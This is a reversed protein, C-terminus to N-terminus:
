APEGEARRFLFQRAGDGADRPETRVAYVEEILTPDLVAAPAGDARVRGEHLVVVRDAYRAALNLDHLVVLTALGQERLLGM